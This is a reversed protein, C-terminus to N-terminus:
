RELGFGTDRRNRNCRGQRTVGGPFRSKFGKKERYKCIVNAFEHDAVRPPM